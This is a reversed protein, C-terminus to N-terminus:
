GAVGNFRYLNIGAKRFHPGEARILKGVFLYQEYTWPGTRKRFDEYDSFKKFDKRFKEKWAEEKKEFIEKKNM